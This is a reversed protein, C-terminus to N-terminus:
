IKCFEGPWLDINNLILLTKKVYHRSPDQFKIHSIYMRYIICFEGPWLDVDYTPIRVFFGAYNKKGVLHVIHGDMTSLITNLIQRM